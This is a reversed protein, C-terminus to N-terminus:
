IGTQSMNVHKPPEHNKLWQYLERADCQWSKGIAYIPAKIRIWGRVTRSSVGFYKAINEVGRLHGYPQSIESM